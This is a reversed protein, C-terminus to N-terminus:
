QNPPVVTQPNTDETAGGQSGPVHGIRQGPLWPERGAECEGGQSPAGTNAYPNVHLGGVPAPAAFMEPPQALIIFRLWTGSADGESVASSANRGFLGLYNCRTQGPVAFELTPRLSLATARLRRLTSPAAPDRALRDVERLAASLRRALRPTRDLVPVGADLAADLDHSAPRLVRLGPMADALFARGDELVPRAARLAETGASEVSPLGAVTERLAEKQSALAGFTV